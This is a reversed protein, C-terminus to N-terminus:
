DRMDAETMVYSSRIPSESISILSQVVTDVMSYDDEDDSVIDLLKERVERENNYTETCSKLFKRWDDALTRRLLVAASQNGQEIKQSEAAFESWYKSKLNAKIEGIQASTLLTPPRPRWMVQYLSDKLVSCLPEGQFTWLKYGNDAAYAWNHAHIPQAAITFLYRGSPDWEVSSCKFHEREALKQNAKVDHFELRTGSSGIAAMVCVNGAPSWYVKDSSRDITYMLTTKKKAVRYFSVQSTNSNSASHIVSFV